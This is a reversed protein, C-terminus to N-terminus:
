ETILIHPAIIEFLAIYTQRKSAMLIIFIHKFYYKPLHKSVKIHIDTHIERHLTWVWVEYKKPHFFDLPHM